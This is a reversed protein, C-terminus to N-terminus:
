LREKKSDWMLAKTVFFISQEDRCRAKEFRVGCILMAAQSVFNIIHMILIM